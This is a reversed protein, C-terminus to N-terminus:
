RIEEVTISRAPSDIVAEFFDRTGPVRSRLSNIEGESVEFMRKSGLSEKLRSYPVSDRSNLHVHIPHFDYVTVDGFFAATSPDFDPNCFEADDEWNYLVRQFCVGGFNWECRHAHMSRHMFLSLDTTLQPFASFVKYLMQSSQFLSHTRMYRANPAFELCSEVVSLLDDGHTSGPLFNPHIGLEHGRSVIEQNLDTLHTAFFTGKVDHRGLLDLCLEISADPAWDIDFTLHYNHTM